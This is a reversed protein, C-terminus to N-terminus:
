IDNDKKDFHLLFHYRVDYLVGLVQKRIFSVTSFLLYGIAIPFVFLLLLNGANGFIIEFISSGSNNYEKVFMDSIMKIDEDKLIKLAIDIFKFIANGMLTSILVLLTTLVGVAWQSVTKLSSLNKELEDILADISNINLIDDESFGKTKLWREKAIKNRWYKSGFYSAAGLIIYTLGMTESQNYSQSENFFGIASIFGIIMIFYYLVKDVWSLLGYAKSTEKVLYYYNSM